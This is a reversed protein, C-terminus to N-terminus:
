KPPLLGKELIGIQDNTTESIILQNAVLKAGGM